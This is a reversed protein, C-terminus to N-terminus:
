GDICVATGPMVDDIGTAETDTVDDFNGSKPDGTHSEGDRERYPNHRQHETAM